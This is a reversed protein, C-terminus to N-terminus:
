SLVTTRQQYELRHCHGSQIASDNLYGWNACDRLKSPSSMRTYKKTSPFSPWSITFCRREIQFSVPKTTWGGLIGDSLSEFKFLRQLLKKQHDASLHKCNNKVISQFDAKQTNPM